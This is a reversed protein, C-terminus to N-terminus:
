KKILVGIMNDITNLMTNLENNVNNKFDISGVKGSLDLIKETDLVNYVHEIRSFVSNLLNYNLPLDYNLSDQNNSILLDIDENLLSRLKDFETKSLSCDEGFYTKNCKCVSISSDTSLILIGDNKCTINSDFEEYNFSCLNEIGNANISVYNEPCYSLCNGDLVYKNLTYKCEKCIKNIDPGKFTGCKQVCLQNDIYYSCEKCINNYGDNIVYFNTSLNIYSSKMTNSSCEKHCTNVSEILYYNSGCQEICYTEKLLMNNAKCFDSKFICKNNQNIILNDNVNNNQYIENSCICENSSNLIFNESCESVCKDLQKYGYCTSSESMSINNDETLPNDANTDSLVLTDDVTVQEEIPANEEEVINSVEESVIVTSCFGGTDISECYECSMTEQNKGYNDTACLDVCDYNEYYKNISSCDFCHNTPNKVPNLPLCLDEEICSNLSDLLYLNNLCEECVFNIDNNKKLPNCDSVCQNSSTDLYSNNPCKECVGNNNINGLNTCTDKCSNDEFVENELCQADCYQEGTILTILPRKIDCNTDICIGDQAKFNTPCYECIGQNNYKDIPCTDTCISNNNVQNLPCSTDCYKYGDTITIEVKDVDCNTFICIGNQAKEGINCYECNGQNNYKEIPCMDVCINNNNLLNLPCTYDCYMYGGILTVEYLNSPCLSTICTNFLAREGLPCYLCSNNDMYKDIPCFTDYCQFNLIDYNVCNNLCYTTQTSNDIEKYFLCENNNSKVFKVLNLSYPDINKYITFFIENSGLDSNPIYTKIDNLYYLTNAYTIRCKFTLTYTNTSSTHLHYVNFKSSSVTLIIWPYIFKIIFLQNSSCDSNEIFTSTILNLSSNTIFLEKDCTNGSYNNGTVFAYIINSNTQTSYRNVALVKQFSTLSNNISTKTQNNLNDTYLRLSGSGLHLLVYTLNLSVPNQMVIYARNETYPFFTLDGLVWCYNLSM